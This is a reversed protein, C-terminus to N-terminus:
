VPLIAGRVSCTHGDGATQVLATEAEISPKSRRPACDISRDIGCRACDVSTKAPEDCGIALALAHESTPRFRKLLWRGPVDDIPSSFHLSLPDLEFHFADLPCSLGLGMAKIYAEKLTWLEYSADVRTDANLGKLHEFESPAFFREAIDLGLRHRDIREVDIGIDGHPAVAVAAMGRTHSLNFRVADDDVHPKGYEGIRFRWDRPARNVLRSLTVRVLAHAAVFSRRDHKFHFREAREREGENLLSALASWEAEKIADVALWRLTVQLPHTPLM